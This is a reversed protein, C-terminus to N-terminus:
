HHEQLLPTHALQLRYSKVLLDGNMFEKDYAREFGLREYLRVASGMMDSTHLHLTAAGATLARRASARILETAVGAGRARPAVALLRIIPSDIGLEPQGYALASSDFLFVSGVLEGGLEAVLRARTPAEDISQLISAKYDAWRSESLVAAYQGYAELLVQELAPRDADTAERITLAGQGAVREGGALVPTASAVADAERSATSASASVAQSDSSKPVHQPGSM